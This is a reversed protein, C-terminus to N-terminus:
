KKKNIETSQERLLSETQLGEIKIDQKTDKEISERKYTDFRREVKNIDKQLSLFENYITTLTFTGIILSVATFILAGISVTIKKNLERIDTM